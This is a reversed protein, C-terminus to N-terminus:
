APAHHASQAAKGRISVERTAAHLSRAGLPACPRCQPLDITTRGWKPRIGASWYAREDPTLALSFTADPEGHLLGRAEGLQAEHDGAM